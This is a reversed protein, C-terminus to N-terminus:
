YSIEHIKAKSAPFWRFRYKHEFNPLCKWNEKYHKTIILTKTKMGVLKNGLLQEIGLGVKFLWFHNTIQVLLIPVDKATVEFEFVFIGCFGIPFIAEQHLMDFIEPENKMIGGDIKVRVSNSSGVFTMITVM